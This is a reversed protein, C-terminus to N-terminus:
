RRAEGDPVATSVQWRGRAAAEKRSIMRLAPGTCATTAQAIIVFPLFFAVTLIGANYGVRLLRVVIVM